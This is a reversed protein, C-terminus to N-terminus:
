LRAPRIQQQNRRNRKHQHQKQQPHDAKDRAM